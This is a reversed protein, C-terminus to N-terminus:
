AYTTSPLTVFTITASASYKSVKTSSEGPIRDLTAITAQFIDGWAGFLAAFM